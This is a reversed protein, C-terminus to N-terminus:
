APEYSLLMETNNTDINISIEEIDSDGIDTRIIQKTDINNIPMQIDVNHRMIRKRNIVSWSKPGEYQDLTLINGPADYMRHFILNRWSAYGNQTYVPMNAGLQKPDKIVHSWIPVEHSDVDALLMVFGDESFDDPRFLMYDVDPCFQGVNISETNDGQIYKDDFNIAINGMADTVDDMWSFEFRSKLDSKQYELEQQCYLVPKKNFRDAKTNLDLISQGSATYSYGHTFYFIHEIRFRNQSDIFWYCAFCERLMSMVQELSIEAKQAAQDYEGKLINTKQTLYLQCNHLASQSVVNSNGYLFESYESTAEHKITPDIKALLSKIVSSIHYSDKLTYKKYTKACWAEFTGELTGDLYVWLSTNSWTSRALPIYGHMDRVSDYPSMFYMGFDNQGYSTPEDSKAEAQVIRIVSNGSSIIDLGICKKYNSRETAFDDYPLDYTPVGEVEDVDCLERIWTNYTIVSAGLNFSAPEPDLRPFPQAVKQMEYLNSGQTISFGKDAGFLKTSQYIKDGMGDAGNYIEIRYTDYLVLAGGTINTVGTTVGNSLLKINIGISQTVVTNANYIKTFKISCPLKYKHGGIVRYSEANWCDSAAICRYVANIDYNFGSLNVENFTPGPYFYYENRLESENDVPSDVDTEWYTGGSYNSIVKEGQIYIQVICRKTLTLWTTATACKILNYTNEYKNLIDTYKDHPTLKLEVSKKVRDFKCDTKNFETTAILTNGRCIDFLLTDNLSANNVIDFDKGFLSIKGDLSERFFMQNAEKAYKKSVTKYHPLVKNYKHVNFDRSYPQAGAYAVDVAFYYAGDPVRAGIKNSRGESVDILMMDEDFWYYTSSVVNEFIPDDAFRVFDFNHVDIEGSACKTNDGTPEIDGSSWSYGALLSIQSINKKGVYFTNIIM